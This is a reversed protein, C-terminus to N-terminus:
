HSLGAVAESLGHAGEGGDQGHAVLDDVRGSGVLLYALYQMLDFAYVLDGFGLKIGHVEGASSM